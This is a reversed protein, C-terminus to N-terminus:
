RVAEKEIARFGSRGSRVLGQEQLAVLHLHVSSPSSLGTLRCLTRVTVPWDTAAQETLLADYVRQQAETM